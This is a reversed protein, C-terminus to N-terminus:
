KINTNVAFNTEFMANSRSMHNKRILKIKAAVLCKNQNQLDIATHTNEFIEYKLFYLFYM